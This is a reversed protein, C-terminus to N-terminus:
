LDPRWVISVDISEFIPRLATIKEEDSTKDSDNIAMAQVAIASDNLAYNHEEDLRIWPTYCETICERPM